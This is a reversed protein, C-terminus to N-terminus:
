QKAEGSTGTNELKANVAVGDRVKMTGDSIVVEGPKLGEEVVWMSGVRGGLKVKRMSVKSDQGVVAVQYTGQIDIVARQPILLASKAVGKLAHVRAFQGPRLINGPNPFLGVLPITGTRPDVQRDTFAVRGKHPYTNGDALVLQLAMATVKTTNSSKPSDDAYQLYEQESIPFHVKVPDLKSITTLVSAPSVLNGMQVTASGAIGDILSRVRTFGLNLEATDVAAEAAQVNAKAEELGAVETDLQSKAIARQDALPTDRKVNVEALTRRAQAQALQAKAQNLTAQFPRPDIEFLVQGKRVYSGEDYDQKVLYGSVQPQIQANVSGDLTAVWESYAPVDQVTVKVVNVSPLPATTKAESRTSCGSITLMLAVLSSMVAFILCNRKM